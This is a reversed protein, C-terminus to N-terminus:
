CRLSCWSSFPFGDVGMHYTINGGLWQAHEAFQFAATSGDFKAWIYIAIALDVVTAILAVWRATNARSREDGGALLIFLAAVMPLFTVISLIPLHSV